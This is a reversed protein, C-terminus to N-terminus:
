IRVIRVATWQGSKVNETRWTYPKFGREPREASEMVRRGKVLTGSFTNAPIKLETEVVRPDTVAVMDLAIDEPVYIVTDVLKGSRFIRWRQAFIDSSERRLDKVLGRMHQTYTIEYPGPGSEPSGLPPDFFVLHSEVTGDEEYVPFRFLNLKKGNANKVVWDVKSFGGESYKMLRTRLCRMQQTPLNIKYSMDFRDEGGSSSQDRGDHQLSYATIVFRLHDIDISSLHRIEQKAFESMENSMEKLRARDDRPGVGGLERARQDQRTCWANFFDEVSRMSEQYANDELAQKFLHTDFTRLTTKILCVDEKMKLKAANVQHDIMAGFLHGLYQLVGTSTEGYYHEKFSLAVTPIGNNTKLVADIPLNAFLGGDVIMHDGGAKPMRYIVPLAVSALLSDIVIDKGTLEKPTANRIDAAIIKASSIGLNDFNIGPKIGIPELADVVLRRLVNEDAISRGFVVKTFALAKFNFGKEAIPPFAERIMKDSVDLLARRVKEVDANPLACLVAGFAGASTGATAVIELVGDAKLKQIAAAAAIISALRAGGGQFALNVKHAM